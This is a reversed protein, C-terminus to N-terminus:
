GGAKEDLFPNVVPVGEHEQGPSLDESYLVECGASEAGQIIM